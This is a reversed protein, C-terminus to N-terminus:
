SAALSQLREVAAVLGALDRECDFHQWVGRHPFAALQQDKALRDLVERELVIGAGSVGTLHNGWLERSFVYYGGNIPAAEIVPRSSFARVIPEDQRMGLIRFRVPLQAAALTAVLGTTRHFNVEAALDVDSLTDSYTVCFREAQDLWPKCELLRDGTTADAATAVLRVSCQRGALGVQYHNADGPSAVAGSGSELAERFGSGQLGTALVFDRAGHLAYHLMVWEFLPKGQVAVLGKNVRQGAAGDVIVGRGGCLIVVPVQDFENM